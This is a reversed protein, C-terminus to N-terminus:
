IKIRIKQITKEMMTSITTNNIKGAKKMIIGFLEKGKEKQHSDDM